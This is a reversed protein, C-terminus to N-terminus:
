IKKSYYKILENFALVEFNNDKMRESINDNTPYLGCSDIILDFYISYFTAEIEKLYKRKIKRINEKELEYNKFDEENEFEISLFENKLTRNTEINKNKKNKAINKNKINKHKQKVFGIENPKYEDHYFIQKKTYKKSKKDLLKEELKYIDM